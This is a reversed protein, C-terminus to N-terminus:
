IEDARSLRRLSERWERQQERTLPALFREEAADSAGLGDHLVRRGRETLKVVNRRRDAPDVARVLLGLSELDDTLTVMTTRDIGLASAAEQQSPNEARSVANLVALQRGSVGIPELAARHEVLWREHVHKLLFGIRAEPASGQDEDGPAAM